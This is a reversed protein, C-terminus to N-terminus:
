AKNQCFELIKNGGLKYNFDESVLGTLFFVIVVSASLTIGCDSNTSSEAMNLYFTPAVNVENGRSGNLIIIQWIALHKM